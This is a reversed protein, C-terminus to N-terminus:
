AGRNTSIIGEGYEAARAVFFIITFFGVMASVEKM